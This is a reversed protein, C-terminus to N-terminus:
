FGVALGVILSDDNKKNEMDDVRKLAISLAINPDLPSAASAKRLYISAEATYEHADRSDDTLAALKTVSITFVIPMKEVFPQKPFPMLDLTIKPGIHAFTDGEKSVTWEGDKAVHGVDFYLAPTFRWYVADYQTQFSGFGLKGGIPILEFEFTPISSQLDFDTHYTFASKAIFGALVGPIQPFNIQQRTEVGFMLSNSEETQFRPSLGGLTETDREIDGGLDIREWQAFFMWSNLAPLGCNTGLTPIVWALIGETNWQDTSTEFDRGYSFLAGKDLLSKTKKTLDDGTEDEEAFATPVADRDRRLVIRPKGATETVSKIELSSTGLGFDIQANVESLKYSSKLPHRQFFSQVRAPAPATNALEDMEKANPPSNLSFRSPFAGILIAANIEKIELEGSGDADLANLIIANQTESAGAHGGMAVVLILMLAGLTHPSM